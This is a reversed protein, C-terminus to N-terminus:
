IHWGTGSCLGLPTSWTLTLIRDSRQWVSIGKSMTRCCDWRYKQRCGWLRTRIAWSFDSEKRLSKESQRVRMHGCHGVSCNLNELHNSNLCPTVENPAQACSYYSCPCDRSYSQNLREEIEERVTGLRRQWDEFFDRTDGAVQYGGGLIVFIVFLCKLRWSVICLLCRM